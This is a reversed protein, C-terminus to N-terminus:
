DRRRLGLLLRLRHEVQEMTEPTVSGWLRVFREQSLCRIGECMIFSRKVVGGEPPMIEVHLPINKCRSTVPLAIALHAPAQNFSDVSVVLCPRTGAQEHGRVPDLEVLWIEGRSPM